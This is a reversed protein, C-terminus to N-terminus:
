IINCPFWDSTRDWTVSGIQAHINNMKPVGIYETSGDNIAIGSIRIQVMNKDPSLGEIFAQLQGPKEDTGVGSTRSLYNYGNFKYSVLGNKCIQKGINNLDTVFALANKKSEIEQKEKVLRLRENEESELIQLQRKAKSLLKSDVYDHDEYKKIFTGVQSISKFDMEKFSRNQLTIFYDSLFANLNKTKLEISKAKEDLTSAFGELENFNSFKSATTIRPYEDNEILKEYKSLISNYTKVHINFKNVNDSMLGMVEDFSEKSSLKMKAQNFAEIYDEGQFEVLMYTIIASMLGLTQINIGLNAGADYSKEMFLAENVSTCPMDSSDNGTATIISCRQTHAYNWLPKKTVLNVWPENTSQKNLSLETFSYSDGIKSLKGYLEIKYPSTEDFMTILHSNDIDGNISSSTSVCGTLSLTLALPLGIKKM